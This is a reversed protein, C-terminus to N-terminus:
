VTRFGPDPMIVMEGEVPVAPPVAPKAPPRARVPVIVPEGLEPEVLPAVIESAPESVVPLEPPPAVARPTLALMVAAVAAAGLVGLGLMMLFAVAVLLVLLPSSRRTRRTPRPPAADETPDMSLDLDDNWDTVDDHVPAERQMAPHEPALRAVPRGPDRGSEARMAYM